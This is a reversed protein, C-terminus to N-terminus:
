KLSVTTVLKSASLYKGARHSDKGFSWSKTDRHHCDKGFHVGQDGM